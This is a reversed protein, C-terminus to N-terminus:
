NSHVLLSVPTANANLFDAFALETDRNLIREKLLGKTDLAVPLSEDRRLARGLATVYAEVANLHTDVNCPTLLSDRIRSCM